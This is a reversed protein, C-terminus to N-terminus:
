GSFLDVNTEEITLAKNGKNTNLFIMRSFEVKFITKKGRDKVSSQVYDNAVLM